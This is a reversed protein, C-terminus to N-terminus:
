KSFVFFPQLTKTEINLITTSLIQIEDSSLKNTHLNFEKSIYEIVMEYLTPNTYETTHVSFTIQDGDHSYITENTARSATKFSDRKVFTYQSAIYKHYKM